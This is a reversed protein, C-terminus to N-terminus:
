FRGQIQQNIWQWNAKSIEAGHETVVTSGLLNGLRACTSLPKGSLYGYLFGSAFLDGAGTTDVVDVKRTKERVMETSSGALCGEAGLLIVATKVLTLLKKCAAEGSLGTLAKAEDHNAFVIDVYHSLLYFILSRHSKAVDFSGLDFSITIGKGKALRMAEEVLQGNGLMYGEIHLHRIGDFLEEHLDQDSLEKGAGPFFVMTRNKDPTVFSIAQSTPTDTKILKPEIKLDLITELFYSGMPDTGLRGFFSTSLGLSALGKITNACSGGTVIVPSDAPAEKLLKSFMQWELYCSSGKSVDIKDIFAEDVHLILDVVPSGIGLVETNAM